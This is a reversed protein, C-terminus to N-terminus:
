SRNEYENGRIAGKSKEKKLVPKRLIRKEYRYFIFEDHELLYDRILELAVDDNLTAYEGKMLYTKNIVTCIKDLLHGDVETTLEQSLQLQVKSKLLPNDLLLMLIAVILENQDDFIGNKELLKGARVLIDQDSESDNKFTM